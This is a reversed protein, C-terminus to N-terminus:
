TTSSPLHKKGSSTSAISEGSPFIRGTGSPIRGTMFFCLISTLAITQDSLDLTTKPHIVVIKTVRWLILGLSNIIGNKTTLLFINKQIQSILQFPQQKQAIPSALIKVGLHKYDTCKLNESHYKFLNGQERIKRTGNFQFRYGWPRFGLCLAKYGLYIFRFLLILTCCHQGFSQGKGRVCLCMCVFKTLNISRRSGEFDALNKLKPQSTRGQKRTKM